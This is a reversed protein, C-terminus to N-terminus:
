GLRFRTILLGGALLVLILAAMWASNMTPAPMGLTVDVDCSITNSFSGEDGTYYGSTVVWYTVGATVGLGYINSTGIGGDGDDDAAILNTCQDLPDWSIEYVHLYGDYEQQSDIDCIGDAAVFFPQDSYRVLYGSPICNSPDQGPRDWEPGGATTGTYMEVDAPAALPTGDDTDVPKDGPPVLQGVVPGASLALFLVTAATVIRRMANGEMKARPM